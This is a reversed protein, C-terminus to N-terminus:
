TPLQGAAPGPAVELPALEAVGHGSLDLMNSSLREHVVEWVLGPDNTPSFGVVRSLPLSWLIRDDLLVMVRGEEDGAVEIAGFAFAGWVASEGVLISELWQLADGSTAGSAKNIAEAVKSDVRFGSIKFHGEGDDSVVVAGMSKDTIGAITAVVSARLELDPIAGVMELFAQGAERFAKSHERYAARAAKYMQRKANRIDASQNM